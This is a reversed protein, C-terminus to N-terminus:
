HVSPHHMQSRRFPPSVKAIPQVGDAEPIGAVAASSTPFLLVTTV